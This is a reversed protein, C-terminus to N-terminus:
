HKRKKVYVVLGAVVVVVSVAPVAAVTATPFPVAPEPKAVIFNIIQSAGVNGAEDTAYITVNHSGNPLQTLTLNGVATRNEQGDLSYTVQKTKENVTFNLPVDSTFYTENEISLALISPPTSDVAPLAIPQYPEDTEVTFYVTDEWVAVYHTEGHAGTGTAKFPGSPANGNSIDVSVEITATLQHSGDSLEPLRVTGTSPNVVHFEGPNDVKWPITGVYKGDISYYLSYKLGGCPFTVTLTLFRTNYTKNAPSQISIISYSSGKASGVSLSHINMILPLLMLCIFLVVSVM